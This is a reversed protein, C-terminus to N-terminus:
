NLNPNQKSIIQHLKIIGQFYEDKELNDLIKETIEIHKNPVWQIENHEHNYEFM